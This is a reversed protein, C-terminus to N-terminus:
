KMLLMKKTSNFDGAKLKYFYLGSSVSNGTNDKGNWNIRYLEDKTISKNIFLTIVKQGRINFISLEAICDEKMSFSIETNPNFPNPYNQHLGYIVPIEPSGPDEGEEPITLSIPGYNYTVGSFEVSELLYWYTSNEIIEYEDEFIYETLDSTTGARPILNLNIQLSQTLSDNESRYVNWGLVSTESQTTWCITPTSDIYQATFSSLVVPLTIDGGDENTVTWDTVGAGSPNNAINNFYAAADTADNISINVSTATAITFKLTVVTQWSTTVNWGPPDGPADMGVSNGTTGVRIYDTLDTASRSYGLSSGYAWNDASTYSIENGFYVDATLSNLTRPSTGVTIQMQVDLWFDGSVVMDNKSVVTKFAVTDALMTVPIILSIILLIIIRKCSIAPKKQEQFYQFLYSISSELKNKM